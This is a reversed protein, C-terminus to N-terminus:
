IRKSPYPLLDYIGYTAEQNKANILIIDARPAFEYIMQRTAGNPYSFEETDTVIVIKKIDKDGKEYAEAIARREAYDKTKFADIERTYGTYCKNKSTLVAAGVKVKSFPAFSKNMASKAERILDNKEIMYDVLTYYKKNVNM